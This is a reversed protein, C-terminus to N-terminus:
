NRHGQKIKEEQDLLSQYFCAKFVEWQLQLKTWEEKIKLDMKIWSNSSRYNPLDFPIIAVNEKESTGIMLRIHM